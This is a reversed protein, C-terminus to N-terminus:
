RCEFSAPRDTDRGQRLEEGTNQMQDQNRQSTSMSMARRNASPGCSGGKATTLAIALASPASSHVNLAPLGIWPAAAISTSATWETQSSPYRQLSARPSPLSSHLYVGPSAATDRIGQMRRGAVPVQKRLLRQVGVANDMGTIPEAYEMRHIGPLALRAPAKGATRADAM